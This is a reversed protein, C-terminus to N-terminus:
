PNQGLFSLSADERGLSFPCTDWVPFMSSESQLGEGPVYYYCRHVSKHIGFSDGRSIQATWSFLGSLNNVTVLSDILYGRSIVLAYVQLSWDCAGAYAKMLLSFQRISCKFFTVHFSSLSVLVLHLSLVSSKWLEVTLLCPTAGQDLTQVTHM